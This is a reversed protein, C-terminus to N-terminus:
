NQVALKARELKLIENQLRLNENELEEREKRDCYDRAAVAFKISVVALDVVRENYKERRTKLFNPKKM